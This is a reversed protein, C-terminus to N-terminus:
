KGFLRSFFGKQKDAQIQRIAEILLQDREIRKQEIAQLERVLAENQSELTEVKTMITKYAETL